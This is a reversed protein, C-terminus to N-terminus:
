KERSFKQQVEKKNSSQFHEGVLRRNLKPM